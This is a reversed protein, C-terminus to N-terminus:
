KTEEVAGQAQAEEHMRTLIELLESKKLKAANEIKLAAAIERLEALKKDKLIDPIM